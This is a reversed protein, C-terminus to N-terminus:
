VIDVFVFASSPDPAAWLISAPPLGPRPFALLWLWEPIWCRPGPFPAKLNTGLIIFWARNASSPITTAAGCLVHGCGPPPRGAPLSSGFLVCPPVERDRWAQIRFCPSCHQSRMGARGSVPRIDKPLDSKRRSCVQKMRLLSTIM